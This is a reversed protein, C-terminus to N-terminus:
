LAADSHTMQLLKQTESYFSCRGSLMQILSISLTFLLFLTSLSTGLITMPLSKIRRLAHVRDISLTSIASISTSSRELLLSLLLFAPWSKSRRLQEYFPSTTGMPLLGHDGSKRSETPAFGM